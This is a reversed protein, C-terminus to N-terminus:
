YIIIGFFTEYRLIGILFLVVNLLVWIRVKTNGNLARRIGIL